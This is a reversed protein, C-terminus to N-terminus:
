ADQFPRADFPDTLCLSSLRGTLNDLAQKWLRVNPFDQSAEVDISVGINPGGTPPISKMQPRPMSFFRPKSTTPRPSKAAQKLM